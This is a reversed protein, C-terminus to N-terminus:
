HALGRARRSVYYLVYSASAVAVAILFVETLLPSSRALATQWVSGASYGLFILLASWGFSGILTM